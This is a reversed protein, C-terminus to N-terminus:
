SIRCVTGNNSLFLRDHGFGTLPGRRKRLSGNTQGLRPNRCVTGPDSLFTSLSGFLSYCSLLMPLFPMRDLWIPPFHCVTGSRPLSKQRYM